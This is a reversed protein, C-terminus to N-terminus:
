GVSATALRTKLIKWLHMQEYLLFPLRLTDQKMENGEIFLTHSIYM